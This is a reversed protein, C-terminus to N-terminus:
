QSRRDVHHADGRWIVAVKRSGLGRKGGALMYQDFLRRHQRQSLEVLKAAQRAFFSDQGLDDVMLQEIGIMLFQALQDDIAHYGAVHMGAGFTHPVVQQMWAVAGGAKLAGHLRDAYGSQTVAFPEYTLVILDWAESGYDFAQETSHVANLKVGAQAASQRAMALGGDSVDFGTVDWGKTALFVANRGQGMGVDLARGPTRGDIAGVLLECPAYTFGKGNANAYINNFMTQWGDAHTRMARQIVGDHLDADVPSLGGAILQERYAAVLIGPGAVPPASPLWALFNKWISEDDFKSM